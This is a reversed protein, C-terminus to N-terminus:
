WWWRSNKRAHMPIFIDLFLWAATVAVLPAFQKEALCWVMAFAYLVPLLIGLGYRHLPKFCEVFLWYGKQSTDM